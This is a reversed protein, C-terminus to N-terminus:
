AEKAMDAPHHASYHEIIDIVEEPKAGASGIKRATVGGAANGLSAAEIPSAGTLLALLIV